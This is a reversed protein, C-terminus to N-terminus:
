VLWDGDEDNSEYITHSIQSEEDNSYYSDYDNEENNMTNQIKFIENKESLMHKIPFIKKRTDIMSSQQSHFKMSHMFASGVTFFSLGQTKFFNYIVYEPVYTHSTYTNFNSTVQEIGHRNSEFQAVISYPLFLQCKSINVEPYLEFFSLTLTHISTNKSFQTRFELWKETYEYLLISEQLIDISIYSNYKICDIFHSLSISAGVVWLEHIRYFSM